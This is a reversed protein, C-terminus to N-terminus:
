VALMLPDGATRRRATLRNRGRLIARDGLACRNPSLATQHDGGRTSTRRDVTPSSSDRSSSGHLRKMPECPVTATVRPAPLHTPVVIM